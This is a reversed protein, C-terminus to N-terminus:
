IYLRHMTTARIEREREEQTSYWRAHARMVPVWKIDYVEGHMGCKRIMYMGRARAHTYVELYISFARLRHRIRIKSTVRHCQGATM